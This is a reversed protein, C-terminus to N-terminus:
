DDRPTLVLKLGADGTLVTPGRDDFRLDGEVSATRSFFSGCYLTMAGEQISPRQWQLSVRMRGQPYGPHITLRLSYTFSVSRSRKRSDGPDPPCAVSLDRQQSFSARGNSATALRGEWLIKGDHSISVDFGTTRADAEGESVSIIPPGPTIMPPPVVPVSVVLATLMAIM